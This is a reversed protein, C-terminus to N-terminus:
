LVRDSSAWAVLGTPDEFEFSDSDARAKAGRHLVLEVRNGPQLRFTVRDAGRYCFSPANWMVQETIDSNSALIATRLEEIERKRPHTLGAIFGDVDQHAGAM